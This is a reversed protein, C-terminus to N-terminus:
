RGKGDMSINIDHRKLVGTFAEGSFQAGQDTNFIDPTDYLRIAPELEIVCFGCDM